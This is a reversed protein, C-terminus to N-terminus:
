NYLCGNQQVSNLQSLTYGLSRTKNMLLELLSSSANKERTFLWLGSNNMTDNRTTCGDPYQVHPQGGSVVAYQYNDTSPGAVVVWYDGGFLNPLFCPAVLLKSPESANPVRACLTFNRSNINMGNVEGYDASNYVDLVTGRYFPVSRNSVRYSATVCYNTNLPLYPTVQQKQIYWTDRAYETINFNDVTNVVPCESNVLLLSSLFIFFSLFM